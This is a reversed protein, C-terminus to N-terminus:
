AATECIAESRIKLVMLLYFHLFDNIGDYLSANKYFSKM